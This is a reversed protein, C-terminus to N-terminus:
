ERYPSHSMSYGVLIPASVSSKRCVSAAAEGCVVGAEWGVAISYDPDAIDESALTNLTQGWVSVM